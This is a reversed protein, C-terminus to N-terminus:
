SLFIIKERQGEFNEALLQSLSALSFCIFKHLNQTIWSGEYPFSSGFFHNFKLTKISLKFLLPSDHFFETPSQSLSSSLASFPSFAFGTQQSEKPSRQRRLYHLETGRPTPRAVRVNYGVESSPRHLEYEKLKFYDIHWPVRNQFLMDLVRDLYVSYHFEYVCPTSHHSGPVELLTFHPTLM